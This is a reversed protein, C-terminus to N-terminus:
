DKKIIVQCIKYYDKDLKEMWTSNHIKWLSDNNKIYYTSEVTNNIINVISLIM